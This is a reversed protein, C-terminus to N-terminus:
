NFTLLLSDIYEIYACGQLTYVLRVCVCQCQKGHIIFLNNFKQEQKASSSQDKSCEEAKKLQCAFKM